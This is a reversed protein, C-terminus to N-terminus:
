LTSAPMAARAAARAAVKEIRVACVKFEPIRSIPDIASVTLSNACAGGGWHFPAFVTDLRIDRTLRAKMVARGRRTTLRIKDGSSIGLTQATDPHIEAFPEPEAKALEPVRRTQTGSQYQALVRGTTLYFPYEEDPVEAPPRHEIAHFRARGDETGFRDLFMRRTGSHGEGPCPWFVGDEAAIREYTVGSYDAVGGATARRFEAFTARNDATFYAGAGLRDALAKLVQADTWVGEPPAKVRRRLLVRGELNTMTGEEEAWQAVPLVVDARAATESLFLDAVVLLDLADLRAVLQDAAPASIVINSAFVLLGHISTGLAGLLEVASLGPGPLDDAAIGWIAAIEARHRPNDIKRYGPLQDAKQGHERGGQGNGQGTLSGYGCFPKGAKGLALALNVFSLVNDVGHSQQEPGRGTLVMATAAEAMLHAAEEIKRAPVGTIREVRDPWYSAVLRRAADFGSTRAAIFDVDLLKRNIAVNLLGNGLAADTGPTVQLHLSAAKATASVRPDVVIFKGGRRRQEDFYQMLPPMTDAPNGGVLLIAEAGPIDELPFPLGRDIGFARLGAAAASAMCFRGNYDINKTRLAVRAFKGLMYAKENTLGGGGFVGVADRGAAAQIDRLRAAIHDLAQDWSVPLLAGGKRARVLPETLRDRADLLAAATFGKRCLGGRNTPFDRPAVVYRGQVSTLSMGCQLACYPCHTDGGRLVNDRAEIDRAEIDDM